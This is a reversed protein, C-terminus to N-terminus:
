KSGITEIRIIGHVDKIIKFVNGPKLLFKFVQMNYENGFLRVIRGYDDVINNNHKNLYFWFTNFPMFFYRVLIEWWRMNKANNHKLVNLLIWQFAQERRTHEKM